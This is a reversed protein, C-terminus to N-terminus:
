SPIGTSCTALQEVTIKDLEDATNSIRIRVEARTLDLPM